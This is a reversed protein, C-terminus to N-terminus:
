HAMNVKTEKDKYQLLIRAFELYEEPVLVMCGTNIIHLKYSINKEM